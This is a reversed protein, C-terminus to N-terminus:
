DGTIWSILVYLLVLGMVVAALMHAALDDHVTIRRPSEGAEGAPAAPAGGPGDRRAAPVFHLRGQVPRGTIIEGARAADQVIAIVLGADFDRMGLQRALVMLTRRREPPLLGARGGEILAATRMALVWRPDSADMSAAARNEAAVGESAAVGGEAAPRRRAMGDAAADAPLGPALMLPPRVGALRGAGPRVGGPRVGTVGTIGGRSVAGGGLSEANVLRLM